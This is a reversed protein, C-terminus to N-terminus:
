PAETFEEEIAKVESIVGALILQNIWDDADYAGELAEIICGLLHHLRAAHTRARALQRELPSLRPARRTTKKM